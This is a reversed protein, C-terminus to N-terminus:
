ALRQFSTLLNVIKLNLVQRGLGRSSVALASRFAARLTECAQFRRALSVSAGFFLGGWIAAGHPQWSSTTVNRRASQSACISVRHHNLKADERQAESSGNRARLRFLGSAM